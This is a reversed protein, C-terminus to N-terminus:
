IKEWVQAIKVETNQNLIQVIELGLKQVMEVRNQVNALNQGSAIGVM